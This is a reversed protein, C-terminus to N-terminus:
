LTDKNVICSARLEEAVWAGFADVAADAPRSSGPRVLFYASPSPIETDFLRILRGSRLDAQALLGRALAVGEGAAAAELLLGADSYTPGSTPEPLAAGAARLWPEWPQWINRLLVCRALDAPVTLAMREQYDPACVAFVLEGALREARVGPWGGRGYRIAADIGGEGVRAVDLRADLQVDIDPRLARFARLRPVLWRSAFSPLVSVMIKHRVPQQPQKAFAKGLIGLAERVPEVLARAQLTPVMHLGQRKFLKVGTEAELERIRHSIAGHTLGLERAAQSYSELRAAAEFARLTQLSPIRTVRRNNSETVIHHM